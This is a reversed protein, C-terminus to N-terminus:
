MYGFGKPTHSNNNLAKHAIKAIIDFDFYHMSALEPNFVLIRWGM